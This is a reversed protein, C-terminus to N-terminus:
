FVIEIEQIHKEYEAYIANELGYAEIEWPHSYYDLENANIVDNKWKCYSALMYDKLEGKAYQKVHTLEHALVTLINKRTLRPTIDVAFERPRNNDDIWICAGRLGKIYRMRINVTLAKALRPGCLRKLMWQAAYEIEENTVTKAQGVIDVFAM